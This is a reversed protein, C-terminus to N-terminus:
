EESVYDDMYDNFLLKRQWYIIKKALQSTPSRELVNPDSVDSQICLGYKWVLFNFDIRYLAHFFTLTHFIDIKVEEHKVM